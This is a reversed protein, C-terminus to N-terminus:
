LLARVLDGGEEAVVNPGGGRSRTSEPQEISPEDLLGGQEGVDVDEAPGREEGVEAGRGDPEEAFRWFIDCRWGTRVSKRYRGFDIMGIGNFAIPQNCM